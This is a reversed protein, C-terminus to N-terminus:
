EGLKRWPFILIPYIKILLLTVMSEISRNEKKDAVIWKRM